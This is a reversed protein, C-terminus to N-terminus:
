KGNTVASSWFDLKELTSSPNFAAACCSIVPHLLHYWAITETGYQHLWELRKFIAKWDHKQGLLTVRPIGRSLGIFPDGNSMKIRYRFYEKMTAMM